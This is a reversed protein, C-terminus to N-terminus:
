GAIGTLPAEETFRRWDSQYDRRLQSIRSPSLGFKRSLDLTRENRAMMEILRRDRDTRTDLWCPWDIRFAAQEDPQTRTNEHLREEYIDMQRQGTVGGHVEEHCRRTSLPLSEVKFGHRQQAVTSLADKAREQGCLRRGSRVARVAFGAIVSVFQRPDKGRDVLRLWWAWCLSVVENICDSRRHQCQIHRFFCRAHRVIRPMARAFESQLQDIPQCVVTATMM